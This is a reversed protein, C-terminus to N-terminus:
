HIHMSVLSRFFSHFYQFVLLYIVQIILHILEEIHEERKQLEEPHQIVVRELVLQQQGSCRQLIVQFLEEMQQVKERRLSELLHPRM